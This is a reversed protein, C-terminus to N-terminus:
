SGVEWGPATTMATVIREVEGETMNPRVPLYFVEQSLRYANLHKYHGRFEPQMSMPKFGMRAPIGRENLHKVISPMRPHRLDYVWCVSRLPMRCRDPIREAYWREVQRRKELNADAAVLSDLVLKAQANPMRYNHGRPEHLFDHADTFGQCRLRRAIQAVVPSHFAIMGGEEGAVIKNQYFSWCRAATCRETKYQAGHVESCDEVVELNRYSAWPMVGNMDCVRGYIHVPMVAVTRDGAADHMEDMDMLLDPGCDVFVPKLGAMVVARACAVMTFEPVLVEGGAPLQLAELALHLAATGSNCAVMCSDPNGDGLWANFRSELEEYPQKDVLAM